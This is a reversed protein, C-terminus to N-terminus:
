RLTQDLLKLYEENVNHKIGYVRTMLIAWTRIDDPNHSQLTLVYNPTNRWNKRDYDTVIDVPNDSEVISKTEEETLKITLKQPIEKVEELEVKM